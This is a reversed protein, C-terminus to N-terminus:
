LILFRVAAWVALVAVFVVLDRGAPFLRKWQHVLEDSATELIGPHTRALRYRYVLYAAAVSLPLVLQAWVPRGEVAIQVFRGSDILLVALAFWFVTRAPHRAALARAENVGLERPNAFLRYAAFLAAVTPLWLLSALLPKLTKM